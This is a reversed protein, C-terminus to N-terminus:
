ILSFLRYHNLVFAIVLTIIFSIGFSILARWRYKDVWKSSVKYSLSYTLYGIGALTLGLAFYVLFKVGEVISDPKLVAMYIGLVLLLYIMFSYHKLVNQFNPKNLIVGFIFSYVLPLSVFFAIAVSLENPIVKIAYLILAILTISASAGSIGIFRSFRSSKESEGM